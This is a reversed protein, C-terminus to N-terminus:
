NNKRILTLAELSLVTWKEVVPSQRPTTHKDIMARSIEVKRKAVPEPKLKLSFINIESDQIGLAVTWTFCVKSVSFCSFIAFTVQTTTPLIFMVKIKMYRFSAGEEGGGVRIM